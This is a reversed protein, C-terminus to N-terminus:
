TKLDFTSMKCWWDYIDCTYLLKHKYDYAASYTVCNFNKDYDFTKTWENQQTNFKYIGDGIHCDYSEYTKSPVVMFEDNNIVFPESFQTFPVPLLKNWKPNRKSQTSM